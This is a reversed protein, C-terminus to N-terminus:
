IGLCLRLSVLFINQYIGQRLLVKGRSTSRKSAPRPGREAGAVALFFAYFPNLVKRMSNDKLENQLSFLSANVVWEHKRAWQGPGGPYQLLSTTSPTHTPLMLM